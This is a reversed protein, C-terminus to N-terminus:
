MSASSLGGLLRRQAHSLMLQLQKWKIHLKGTKVCMSHANMHSFSFIQPIFSGGRDPSPLLSLNCFLLKFVNGPSAPIANPFALASNFALSVVSISYIM